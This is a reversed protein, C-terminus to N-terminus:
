SNLDRNQYCGQSPKGVFMEDRVIEMGRLLVTRPWGVVDLGEYPTWGAAENLHGARITKKRKPDFIVIDADYGPLLAGKRYLGMRRAPATCCASVWATLPLDRENVGFHHVLALRAEIGPLGGPVDAFSSQQKESRTWPCHDTSVIDISGDHLARWLADQDAPSRLPPACIYLHGDSAALHESATLLLYHPCTEATIDLARQRSAAVQALSEAAGVHFIHLPCGALAAIEAARQVASAELRAPRTREHWIPKRRGAAVAEARLQDLLPGTESHLVVGGGASAIARMTRLLAVDDLQMRDYAQYLKFTACGAAVAAPLDHLRDEAAAHWTPITMHLGYDIAVRGGAESRRARLAEMLPQEPQPDTFDVVTTTGGCAAAVTGTEFSDTSTRGGLQMQLHVHCDVGGPIVYCGSADISRDANLQAGFAAIRDQDVALDAFIPGAPTILQGHRIVLDHM